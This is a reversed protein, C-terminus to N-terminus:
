LRRVYRVAIQTDSSVGSDLRQIPSGNGGLFQMPIQETATWYYGIDTNQHPMSDNPRYLGSIVANFGESGPGNYVLASWPQGAVLANWDDDDPLVWGEPAYEHAAEWTYYRGAPGGPSGSNETSDTGVPTAYDYDETMWLTTGYRAAQYTGGLPDTAYMVQVAVTFQMENLFTGNGGNGGNGGFAQLTAVVPGGYAPAPVPLTYGRSELMPANPYDFETPLVSPSSTILLVKKVGGYLTWQLGLQLITGPKTVSVIGGANPAGFAVVGRSAPPEAKDLDLVLVLDAYPTQADKMFGTCLVAVQTHGPQNFSRIESFAVSFNAEDSGAAGFLSTGGAPALTWTPSNDGTPKAPTVSWLANSVAPTAEINWASDAPAPTGKPASDPALAGATTGYVFSIVISPTGAAQGVARSLGATSTNRLTLELSNVLPDSPSSCYIVGGGSLTAALPLPLSQQGPAPNAKLALDAPYSASIGPTNPLKPLLNVKRIGPQAASRMQGITFTLPDGQRWTGAQACTFTVTWTSATVVGAWGSSAGPKMAGIEEATFFARPLALSLESARAVLDIDAGTRNTVALTMTTDTGATLAPTADAANTFTFPLVDTAM